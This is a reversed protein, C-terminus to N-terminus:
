SCTSEVAWGSQSLPAVREGTGPSRTKQAAPRAWTELSAPLALSPLRMRSSLSTSMTAGGNKAEDALTSTAGRAMAQCAPEVVLFGAVGDPTAPKKEM